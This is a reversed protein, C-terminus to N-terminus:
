TRPVQAAAFTNQIWNTSPHKSSLETYVAEKDRREEPKVRDLCAPLRSLSTNDPNVIRM